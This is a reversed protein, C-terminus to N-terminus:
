PHILSVPPPRISGGARSTADMPPLFLPRDIFTNTKAIGSAGDVQHRQTDRQLGAATTERYDHSESM